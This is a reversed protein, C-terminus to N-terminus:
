DNEFYDSFNDNPQMGKTWQQMWLDGLRTNATSGDLLMLNIAVGHRAISYRAMGDVDANGTEASAPPLDSANRPQSDIWVGDGLLPVAGPANSYRAVSYTVDYRTAMWVNLTYAGPTQTTSTSGPGAELNWYWTKDATGAYYTDVTTSACQLAPLIGEPTSTDKGFGPHGLYPALRNWWMHGRPYSAIANPTYQVVAGRHAQGYMFFARHWGHLTAMCHASEAQKMARDLSPVLMALLIVIIAIVVLLEVLTFGRSNTNRM